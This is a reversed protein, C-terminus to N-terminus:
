QVNPVPPLPYNAEYLELIFSSIRQLEKVAELDSNALTHLTKVPLAPSAEFFKKILEATNM